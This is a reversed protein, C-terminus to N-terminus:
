WKFCSSQGTPSMRTAVTHRNQRDLVHSPGRFVLVKQPTFPLLCIDAVFYQTNLKLLM